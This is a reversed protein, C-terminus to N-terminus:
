AYTLTKEDQRIKAKHAVQFGIICMLHRKSMRHGDM